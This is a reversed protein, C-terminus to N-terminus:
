KRKRKKARAAIEVATPPKVRDYYYTQRDKASLRMLFGEDLPYSDAQKGALPQGDIELYTLSMDPFQAKLATIDAALEPSAANVADWLQRKNM